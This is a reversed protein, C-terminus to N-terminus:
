QVTLPHLEKCAPYNKMRKVMQQNKEFDDKEFFEKLSVMLTHTSHIGTQKPIQNKHYGKFAQRLIMLGKLLFFNLLSWIPRSM